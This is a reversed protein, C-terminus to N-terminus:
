CSIQLLVFIFFKCNHVQIMNLKLDDYEKQLKHLDKKTKIIDNEKQLIYYKYICYLFVFIQNCAIIM